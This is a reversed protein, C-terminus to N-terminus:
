IGSMWSIGLYCDDLVFHSALPNVEFNEDKLAMIVLIYEVAGLM